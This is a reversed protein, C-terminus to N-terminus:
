QYWGAEVLMQRVREVEKPHPKKTTVAAAADNDVVVPDIGTLESVTLGLNEEAVEDYLSALLAMYESDTIGDPFARRLVELMEVVPPPLDSVM